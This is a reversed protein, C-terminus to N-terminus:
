HRIESMEGGNFARLALVCCRVVVIVIVFADTICLCARVNPLAASTVDAADGFPIVCCDHKSAQFYQRVIVVGAPVQSTLM